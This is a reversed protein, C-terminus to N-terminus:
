FSPLFSIECIQNTSLDVSTFSSIIYVYMYIYINLLKIQINEISVRNLRIKYFIRIFYIVGRCDMFFWVIECSLRKRKCAPSYEIQWHLGLVPRFDILQKPPSRVYSVYFPVVVFYNETAFPLYCYFFDFTFMKKSFLWHPLVWQFDILKSSIYVPM